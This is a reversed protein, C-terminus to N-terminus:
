EKEKAKGGVERLLSYTKQCSRYKMRTQKGSHDCGSDWHLWVGGGTADKASQGTKLWMQLASQGGGKGSNLQTACRGSLVAFETSGKGKLRGEKRAV